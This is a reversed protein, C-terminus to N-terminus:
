NPHKNTHKKASVAGSKFNDLYDDAFINQNADRNQLARANVKNVHSRASFREAAVFIKAERPSTKLLTATPYQAVIQSEIYSSKNEPVVLYFHITQNFVAIEASLCETKGLIKDLLSQSGSALSAFLQSASEAGIESSKPLRIEVISKNPM